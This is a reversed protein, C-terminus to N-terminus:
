LGSTGPEFGPRAVMEIVVGTEELQYEKEKEEVKGYKFLLTGFKRETLTSAFNAIIRIGGREFKIYNSSAEVYFKRKCKENIM